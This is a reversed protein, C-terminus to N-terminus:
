GARPQNVWQQVSPRQWQHAAYTALRPPVLDGHLCLRNLMLAVDTDALCWEGFLHNAGVPLLTDIARFLRQAADTAESSLAANRKGLFVVETPRETRISILDSRLWAQLQRARARTKLDKPYLATGNSFLEDIYECIATSESLGFRDDVLTPVRGTLSLALYELSDQAGSALNLPRIAFSQGKETLAVFAAMAYPSLYRDDVYLSLKSATM